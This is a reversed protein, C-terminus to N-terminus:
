RWKHVLSQGPVDRVVTRVSGAEQPRAVEMGTRSWIPVLGGKRRVESSVVEKVLEGQGEM